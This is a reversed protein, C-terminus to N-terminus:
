KKLANLYVNEYNKGMLNASFQSRGVVLANYSWELDWTEKMKKIKNLFDNQNNLKFCEGFYQQSINIIEMHPAIDSLLLPLGANLAELVSLPLGEAQSASIYLDSALLYEDVNIKHGLFYMNNTKHNECLERDCGDGIFIIKFHNM